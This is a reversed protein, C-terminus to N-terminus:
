KSASTGTLLYVRRWRREAAASLVKSSEKESDRKRGCVCVRDKACERVGKRAVSEVEDIKSQGGIRDAARRLEGKFGRLHGRRPPDGIM